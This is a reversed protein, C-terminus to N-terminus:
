EVRKWQGTEGNFMTSTDYLKSDGCAMVYHGGFVLVIVPIRDIESRWWFWGTSHEDVTKGQFPIRRTWRNTM